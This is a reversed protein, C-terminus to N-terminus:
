WRGIDIGGGDVSVYVEAAWASLQPASCYQRGQEDALDADGLYTGGDSHSWGEGEAHM